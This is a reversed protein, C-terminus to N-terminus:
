ISIATANGTGQNELFTDSVTDYWGVHNDSDRQAPLLNCKGVIVIAGYLDGTFKASTVETSTTGILCTTSSTFSLQSWTSVTNFGFTGTPTIEVDYRTNAVIYSNYTGSGYRMYKAGSTTSVYLSYNNTADTTTYCGLVNCAKTAKFALQITDSGQLYIGTDFWQNGDLTMGALLTFGDPLSAGENVVTWNTPIASTGRSWSALAPKVFTGSSAVGYM